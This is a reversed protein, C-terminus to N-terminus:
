LSIPMNELKEADDEITEDTDGRGFVVDLEVRCFGQGLVIPARNLLIRGLAPWCIVRQAVRNYFGYRVGRVRVEQNVKGAVM